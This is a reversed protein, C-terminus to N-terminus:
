DLPHKQQRTRVSEIRQKSPRFGQSQQLNLIAWGSPLAIAALVVKLGDGILFPLVGVELVANWGVSQALWLCGAIYIATTGFAMAFVTRSLRRDWGRESLKGVLFAAIVFGVLYGGTPGALHSLGWGGHSFVPAGALGAGIYAIMSLAGRKSGLLAGVLLVAFTQGTIPVPTLPIEIRTLLATLLVGGGIWIAERLLGSGPWIVDVFSLRVDSSRNM